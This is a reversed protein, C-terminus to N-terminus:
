ETKTRHQFFDQSFPLEDGEVKNAPQSGEGDVIDPIKEQDLLGSLGQGVDVNVRCFNKCIRIEEVKIRLVVPRQVVFLLM